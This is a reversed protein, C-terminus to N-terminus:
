IYLSYKQARYYSYLVDDNRSVNLDPSYETIGSIGTFYDTLQVTSNTAIQYRYLNRFGDRNSLFYIESDDASFQPNLNNAELFVPLNEITRNSLEMIALNFNIEVGVDNEMSLKNYSFVIRKGDRSFAPQTESYPDDTLQDLKKTDFHYQYLDSQGQKLGAFVVSNGDPSWAINSFEGVEGMGEALVTKGNDVNVVILKNRGEDFASFAFRRSDPSFSGASEIFSFEDVHSNTLKSTLKRIIKGTQAEA